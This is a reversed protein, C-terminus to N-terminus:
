SAAGTGGGYQGQRYGGGKSLSHCHRLHYGIGECVRDKWLIVSDGDGSLLGMLLFVFKGCVM